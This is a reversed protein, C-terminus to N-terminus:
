SNYDYLNYSGCNRCVDHKNYMTEIGCVHEDKGCFSCYFVPDGGPTMVGHLILWYGYKKDEM